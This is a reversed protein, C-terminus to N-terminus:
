ALASPSAFLSSKKRRATFPGPRPKAWLPQHNRQQESELRRVKEFLLRMAPDAQPITKPALPKLHPHGPTPYPEPEGLAETHYSEHDKSYDQGWNDSDGMGERAPVHTPKPPPGLHTVKLDQLNVPILLPETQRELIRHRPSASSGRSPRRRISPARVRAPGLSSQSVM